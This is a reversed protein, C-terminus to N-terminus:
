RRFDTVIITLYRPLFASSSVFATCGYFPAMIRRGLLLSSVKLLGPAQPRNDREAHSTITLRRTQFMSGAAFTQRFKVQILRLDFEYLLSSVSEVKSKSAQNLQLQSMESALESLWVSIELIKM